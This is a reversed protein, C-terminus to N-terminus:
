RLIGKGRGNAPHPVDSRVLRGTAVHRALAVDGPTAPGRRRSMRLEARGDPRLAVAEVADLPLPGYVGLLRLEDPRFGHERLLRTWAALLRERPLLTWPVRARRQRHLRGGPALRPRRAAPRGLAGARARPAALPRAAAAARATLVAIAGAVVPAAPEVAVDTTTAPAACRRAGPVPAQPWVPARARALLPEVRRADAPADLGPRAVAPPPPGAGYVAPAPAPPRRAVPSAGLRAM